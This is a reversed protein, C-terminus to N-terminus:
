GNGATARNDRGLPRCHSLLVAVFAASALSAYGNWRDSKLNDCYDSVGRVIFWPVSRLNAGVALGSAEMEVGIIGHSRALRDRHAADRLLRDASGIAGFHVGPMVPVDSAASGGSGSPRAFRTDTVRDIERKLPRGLDPQTARLEQIARLVDASLGQLHRRLQERGDVTRTHDYDVIGDVAVLVDGLRVPDDASGSGPVAGAIGSFIACRITPFSRLADAAVVAASRNGDHPLVTTVVSHVAGPIRSPLEGAVYLNPDGAPGDIVPRVHRLVATVAAFECPLATLVAVTPPSAPSLVADSRVMPVPGHVPVRPIEDVRQAELRQAQDLLREAYIWAAERVWAERIVLLWLALMAVDVGALAAFAPLQKTAPWSLLAWAAMVAISAVAALCGWPRLGFLNRRFGYTRNDVRVEPVDATWTRLARIAAEYMEDAGAPDADEDDATPLRAKAVRELVQHRRAQVSPPVPSRWRLLQTTPRGGWAAFLRPECRRGCVRALQDFLPLIAILVALTVIRDIVALRPLAIAGLLVLPLAAILVPALRAQRSYGDIMTNRGLLLILQAPCELFGMMCCGRRPTVAASVM